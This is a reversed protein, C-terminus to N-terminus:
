VHTAELEKAEREALPGIKQCEAVIAQGLAYIESLEEFFLGIATVRGRSDFQISLINDENVKVSAPAGHPHFSHTANM